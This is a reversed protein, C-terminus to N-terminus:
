YQKFYAYNICAHCVHTVISPWVFCNHHPPAAHRVHPPSFIRVYDAFMITDMLDWYRGSLSEM